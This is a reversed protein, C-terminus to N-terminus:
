IQWSREQISINETEKKGKKATLKKESDSIRKNNLFDNIEELM